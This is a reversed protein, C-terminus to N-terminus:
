IFFFEWFWWFVNMFDVFGCLKMLLIHFGLSYFCSCDQRSIWFIISEILYFFNVFGGILCPKQSNKPPKTFKKFNKLIYYSEWFAKEGAIKFLKRLYGNKLKQWLFLEWSLFHGFYDKKNQFKSIKIKNKKFKFSYGM